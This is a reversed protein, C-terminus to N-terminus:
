RGRDRPAIRFLGDNAIWDGLCHAKKVDTIREDRDHTFCRDLRIQHIKGPCSLRDRPRRGSVGLRFQTFDLSDMMYSKM